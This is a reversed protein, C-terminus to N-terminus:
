FRPTTRFYDLRWIGSLVFNHKHDYTTRGRDLAINNWDTAVQATSRQSDIFDLSKGFTYFGKVSFSRSFRKEGTIQLGHYASNLVSKSLGITGLVNPLYPRRTDVNNTTAGTTLIPYNLDESVPIRHALTSVHAMQMSVTSTM